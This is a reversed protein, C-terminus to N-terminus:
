ATAEVQMTWVTVDFLGEPVAIGMRTYTKGGIVVIDADVIQAYDEDLLTLVARSDDLEGLSTDDGTATGAFKVAVPVVVDEHTGPTTPTASWNFPRGSADAAGVGAYTPAATWRFTVPQAPANPQGMVMAFRVSTRFLDADWGAPPTGAM